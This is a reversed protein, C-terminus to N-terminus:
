KKSAATKEVSQESTSMVAVAAKKRATGPIGTVGMKKPAAQWRAAPETRM